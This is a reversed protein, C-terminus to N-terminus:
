SYVQPQASTITDTLAEITIRGFISHMLELENFAERVSRVNVYASSEGHGSLRPSM